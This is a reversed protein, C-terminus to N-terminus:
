TSVIGAPIITYAFAEGICKRYKQKLCIVYKKFINIEKLSGRGLVGDVHCDTKVTTGWGRPSNDFDM